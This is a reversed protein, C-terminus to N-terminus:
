EERMVVESSKFYMNMRLVIKQLQTHDPFHSAYPDKLNQYIIMSTDNLEAVSTSFFDMQFRHSPWKSESLFNSYVYGDCPPSCECLDLYESIGYIDRERDNACKIRGITYTLDETSRNVKGWFDYHGKLDNPVPYFASFCGCVDVIQRQVCYQFCSESTYKVHPSGKISTEMSCNGFPQPLRKVQEVTIAVSTSHGPMLDIGDSLPDPTTGPAHIVLRAGEGATLPEYANYEAGIM